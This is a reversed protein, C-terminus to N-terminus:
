IGLAFYSSKIIFMDIVQEIVFFVIAEKAKKNQMILTQRGFADM